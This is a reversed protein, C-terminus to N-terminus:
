GPSDVKLKLVSMFTLCRCFPIPVADRTPMTAIKPDAASAGSEAGVARLIPGALPDEMGSGDNPNAAGGGTIRGSVVLEVDVLLESGGVFGGLRPAVGGFVPLVVGVVM